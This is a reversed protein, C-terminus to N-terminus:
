YRPRPKGFPIRQLAAGGFHHKFRRTGALEVCKVRRM